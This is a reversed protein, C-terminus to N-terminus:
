ENLYRGPKDNKSFISGLLYPILSFVLKTHAISIAFNDAWLRFHSMGGDESDIYRVAVPLNIVPVGMRAIKVAIEIDFDMHDGTHGAALAASIPYIRFGCMPDIIKYGLTEIHTWFLTIKRGFRRSFPATKDFLPHGLLLAEPTNKSHEVFTSTQELDHQGDADVQLAHTFGAEAAAQFGTKVAAGKGGNETRHVAHFGDDKALLNIVATTEENSADNVIFVDDIEM